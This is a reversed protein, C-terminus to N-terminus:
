KRAGMKAYIGSKEKKTGRDNKNEKGYNCIYDLQKSTLHIKDYCYLYKVKEIGLVEIFKSLEKFNLRPTRMIGGLQWKKSTRTFTKVIKTYIYM